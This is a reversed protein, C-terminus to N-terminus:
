GLKRQGIRRLSELRAERVAKEEAVELDKARKEEAKGRAAARRFEVRIRHRLQNERRSAAMRKVEAAELQAKEAVQAAQLARREASLLSGRRAREQREAEKRTKEKARREEELERQHQAAEIKAERAPRLKELKGKWNACKELQKEIEGKTLKREERKQLEEKEAVKDEEILRRAERRYDDLVAEYRANLIACEELAFRLELAETETLGPEMKMVAETWLDWRSQGRRCYIEKLHTASPLLEKWRDCAIERKSKIDSLKRWYLKSSSELNRKLAKRTSTPASHSRATKFKLPLETKKLAKLNTQGMEADDTKGKEEQIRLEEFGGSLDASLQEERAKLQCWHRM